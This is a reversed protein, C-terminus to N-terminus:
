KRRKAEWKAEAVLSDFEDGAYPGLHRVIIQKARRINVGSEIILWEFDALDKRRGAAMKMAPLYELTVIPIGELVEAHDLAEEYLSRYHDDRLVIDVPTGNPAETTYGGFSLPKIPSLAEIARDAVVDVDGTLRDSGYIQLAYGGLLAVRVQEAAAHHLIQDVAISLTTPDLFRKRSSSSSNYRKM